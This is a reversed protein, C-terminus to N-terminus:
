AGVEEFETLKTQKIEEIAALQEQTAFRGPWPTWKDLDFGFHKKAAVFPNFADLPVLVGATGDHDGGYVTQGAVAFYKVIKKLLGVPVLLDYEEGVNGLTFSWYAAETVRLGSKKRNNWFEVYIRGTKSALFDRKVEVKGFRLCEELRDENALGAALDKDWGARAISM